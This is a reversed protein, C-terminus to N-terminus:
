CLFTEDTGRGYRNLASASILLLVATALWVQWHSFIGSSIVFASTWHLDAAIRWVAMTFAALAAPTLLTAAGLAMLRPRQHPENASKRWHIRIRM